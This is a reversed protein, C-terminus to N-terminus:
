AKLDEKTLKRPGAKGKQPCEKSIHGKQYCTWCKGLKMLAQRENHTLHSGYRIARAADAKALEEEDKGQETDGEEGDSDVGGPNLYAQQLKLTATARKGASSPSSFSSSSSSHYHKAGYPSRGGRHSPSYLRKTELINYASQAASRWEDVNTPGREMAKEWLLPDGRLLIDGYLRGLMSMAVPQDEAGPYLIQALRDFESDMASLDKCTGKGYVLSDLKAEAMVRSTTGDYTKLFSAFVDALTVEIGKQKARTRLNIFWAQASGKLLLGFVLVRNYDPQDQTTLQLYDRAILLWQSARPKDEITGAFKDPASVKLGGHAPQPSASSLAPSAPMVSPIPIPDMFLPHRVSSQPRTTEPIPPFPTFSTRGSPAPTHPAPSSESAGATARGLVSLLENMKNTLVETAEQVKRQERQMDLLEKVTAFQNDIVEKGSNEDNTHTSM